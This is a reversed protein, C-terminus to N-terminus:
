IINYLYCQYNCDGIITGDLDIIFIYPDIKSGKEEKNNM